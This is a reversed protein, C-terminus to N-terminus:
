GLFFNKNYIQSKISQVPPPRIVSTYGDHTKAVGIAIESSWQSDAYNVVAIAAPVDANSDISAHLVPHDNDSVVVVQEDVKRTVNSDSFGVAITIAFAILSLLITSRKM